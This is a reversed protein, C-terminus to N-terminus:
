VGTSGEPCNGPHYLPVSVSVKELQSLFVMRSSRTVAHNLAVALFRGNSSYRLLCGSGDSSTQSSDGAGSTSTDLTETSWSATFPLCGLHKTHFDHRECHESSRNSLPHNEKDDDQISHVITQRDEGWQLHLHRLQVHGKSTMQPCAMTLSVAEGLVQVSSVVALLKLSWCRPLM